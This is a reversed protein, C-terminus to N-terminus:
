LLKLDKVLEYIDEDRVDQNQYYELHNYNDFCPRCFKEENQIQVGEGENFECECANCQHTNINDPLSDYNKLYDQASDSQYCM